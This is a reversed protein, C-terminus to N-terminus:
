LEFSVDYRSGNDNNQDVQDTFILYWRGPELHGEWSGGGWWCGWNHDDGCGRRLEWTVDGQPVEVNFWVLRDGGQDDAPVDIAIVEDPNPGHGCTPMIDIEAGLLDGAYREEPGLVQPEVCAEGVVPENCGFEDSLGDCDNDINDACVEARPEFLSHCGELGDGECFPVGASCIGAAGTDCEGRPDDVGGVCDNNLGDCRDYEGPRVDANNDDCDGDCITWDDSDPDLTSCSGNEDTLGFSIRYEGLFQRDRWQAILFWTGPELGHVVDAQNGMCSREGPENCATDRLIWDVGQSTGMTFARLDTGGRPGDPVNIRIVFDSVSERNDCGAPTDAGYGELDGAFTGGRSGDVALECTDGEPLIECGEEDVTGDCDNDADDDCVEDRPFESQDCLLQDNAGCRPKGTGCVGREGTDCEGQPDDPWGSCDDDVGNCIEEREPHIDAQRDDCDGDCVTLQDGDGDRTFCQGTAPNRMAVTFAYHASGNVNGPVRVHLYYEGPNLWFTQRDQPGLCSVDSGNACDGERVMFQVDPHTGPGPILYVEVEGGSPDEPVQFRAVHDSGDHGFCGIPEDRVAGRLDGEFLGGNGLDFSDPCSERGAHGPPPDDVPDPDPEPDPDDVPDPDEEPDPDIAPDPDDAPEPDPDSVPDSIPDDGPDPDEGSPDADGADEGSPQGEVDDGSPRDALGEESEPGQSLQPPACAVALILALLNSAVLVHKM